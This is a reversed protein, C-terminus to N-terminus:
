KLQFMTPISMLGKNQYDLARLTGQSLAHCERKVPAYSDIHTPTSLLEM